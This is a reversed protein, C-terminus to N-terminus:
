LKDGIAFLLALVLLVAGQLWVRAMMLKNGWRANAEGGKGMLFIGTVLVGALAMLLLILVIGFFSM